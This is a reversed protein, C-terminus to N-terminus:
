SQISSSLFPLGGNVRGRSLLESVGRLAGRRLFLGRGATSIQWGAPAATDDGTAVLAAELTVPVNLRISIQIPPAPSVSVVVSLLSYVPRRMRSRMSSDSALVQRTHM